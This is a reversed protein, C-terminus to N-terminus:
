KMECECPSLLTLIYIGGCVEVPPTHAALAFCQSFSVIIEM